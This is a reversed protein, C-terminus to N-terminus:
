GRSAWYAKCDDYGQAMRQEITKPSFDLPDGLHRSPEIVDIQVKRYKPHGLAALENCLTAARLDGLLIENSMLDIVRKAFVIDNGLKERKIKEPTRPTCLLVVIRDFGADIAGGLPAIDRVGGDTWLDTATEIPEFECPFSSTIMAATVLDPTHQDFIELRGTLMDVGTIRLQVGSKRIAEPDVWHELLERLPWTKVLYPQWLGCLLPPFCKRYVSKNGTISLWIAHILNAVNRVQDEGKPFMAVAEAHLGGVSTGGSYGIDGAIVGLDAMAQWAGAQWAGKSGGGSQVIATGTVPRHMETM